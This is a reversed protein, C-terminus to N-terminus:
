FFFQWCMKRCLTCKKKLNLSKCDLTWMKDKLIFFLRMDDLDSTLDGGSGDMDDLSSPGLDGVGLLGTLDGGDCDTALRLFSAGNDGILVVLLFFWCCFLSFAGDTHLTTGFENFSKLCTCSGLACPQFNRWKLSKYIHHNHRYFRRTLGHGCSVFNEAWVITKQFIPM